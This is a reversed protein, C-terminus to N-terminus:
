RQTAANVPEFFASFPMPNKRPPASSAVTPNAAATAIMAPASSSTHSNLRSNSLRSRPLALALGFNRSIKEFLRAMLRSDAARINRKPARSTQNTTASGTNRAEVSPQSKQCTPPNRAAHTM